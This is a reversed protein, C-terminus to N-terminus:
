FSRSVRVPSSFPCFRTGFASFVDFYTSQGADVAFNAIFTITVQAV